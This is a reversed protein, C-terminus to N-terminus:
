YGDSAFLAAVAHFALFIDDLIAIHQQELKVDSCQLQGIRALRRTNILDSLAPGCQPVAKRLPSM